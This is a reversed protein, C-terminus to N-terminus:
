PTCAPPSTNSGNWVIGDPVNERTDVRRNKGITVVSGITAATCIHVGRNITTDNGIVVDDDIVVSKAIFVNDGITVNDGIVADKNITTNNGVSVNDGIVTNKNIETGLGIVPNSGIIVGSGTVTDLPVCADGFGDGDSDLQGPNATSPCNDQVDDVGDGDSDVPRVLWHGSTPAAGVGLSEGIVARAVPPFGNTRNLLLELVGTLMDSTNGQAIFYDTDGPVAAQDPRTGSDTSGVLLLLSGAPAANLVAFGGNVEPINANGFLAVLERPTAHRFGEFDGGADFELAIDAFSRNTTLNVDLWELGSNADLTTDGQDILSQASVSFTAIPSFSLLLLGLARGQLCLPLKM